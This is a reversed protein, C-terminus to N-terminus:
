SHAQIAEIIGDPLAVGSFFIGVCYVKEYYNARAIALPLSSVSLSTFSVTFIIVVVLSVWPNTFVLVGALSIMNVVASLWFSKEVGMWNVWTSVPLIIVTSFVLILVLLWKGELSVSLFGLNNKLTTPFYNFLITTSLGLVIGLFFIYGYKSKQTDLKIETKPKNQHNFLRISNKKLALGSLFVAVGGILFTVPAGLYDILDIIVPELSYLLNAVITLIAMARPLKDVPTFLELTSLAPSTFISMAILWFVILLPLIWKFVEGPNGLLTFAVAMFIMAAFSIGTSIVPIRSGQQFRFRDGMRGAIPPTIVLIIGQIVMLLFTFDTFHFQELLKPQYNHYAIWGVVISAYLAALSWLQRWEIAVASANEDTGTATTNM